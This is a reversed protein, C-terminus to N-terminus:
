RKPNSAYGVRLFERMESYDRTLDLTTGTAYMAGFIVSFATSTRWTLDAGVTREDSQRGTSAIDRREIQGRFGVRLRPGFSRGFYAAGNYLRADPTNSSPYSERRTLAQLNLDYGGSDYTWMLQGYDSRFSEATATAGHLTSAVGYFEFNGQLTAASNSYERGMRLSIASHTSL